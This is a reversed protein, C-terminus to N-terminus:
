SVKSLALRLGVAMLMLGAVTRFLRGIRPAARLRKATGAVAFVITVLVVSAILVHVLGILMIQAPVNGLTTDIFQPLLALMVLAVKPNLLNVLIGHGFVKGASVPPQNLSATRAATPQFMTRFGLYVLYLAGIWKVCLYITSSYTLVASLGAAVGLVHCAIGTANGLVAIMGTRRDGGVTKTIVYIWSPGPVLALVLSVAAFGLFQGFHVLIEL